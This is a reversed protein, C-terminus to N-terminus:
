LWATQSLIYWATINGVLVLFNGLSHLILPLLITESKLYVWALFFGGLLNEPSPNGYLVHLLGFLIGNIVITKQCGLISVLSVCVVVRYITEELVPAIICNYWFLYKFQSPETIVFPIQNGALCWIGWGVIICVAVILGIKISTRVWISWGQLPRSQLGISKLDGKTLYVILAFATLALTLRLDLSPRRIICIIDLTLTGVAVALAAYKEFTLDVLQRGIASQM